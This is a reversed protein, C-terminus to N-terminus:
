TELPYYNHIVVYLGIYITHGDTLALALAIWVKEKLKTVKLAQKESTSIEEECVGQEEHEYRLEKTLHNAPVLSVLM